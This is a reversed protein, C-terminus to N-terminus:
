VQIAERRRRGVALAAEGHRAGGALAEEQWHEGLREAVAITLRPRQGLRGLQEVAAISAARSAPVTLRERPCRTLRAKAATCRPSHVDRECECLLADLQRPRRCHIRRLVRSPHQRDRAGLGALGGARDLEEYLGAAFVRHREARRRARLYRSSSVRAHSVSPVRLPLACPPAAATTAASVAAPRHSRRPPALLRAATARPPSGARRRRM